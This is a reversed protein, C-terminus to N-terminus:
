RRAAPAAKALPGAPEGSASAAMAPSRGSRNPGTGRRPFKPKRGRCRRPASMVRTDVNEGAGVGGGEAGPMVV